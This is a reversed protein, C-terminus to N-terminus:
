HELKKPGLEKRLKRDNRQKEELRKKESQALETDSKLLAVLDDRKTAHSPLSSEQLFRGNTTVLMKFSLQLCYWRRQNSHIGNGFGGTFRTM